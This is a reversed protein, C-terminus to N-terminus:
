WPGKTVLLGSPLPKPRYTEFSIKSRFLPSIFKRGSSSELFLNLFDEKITDDDSFDEVIGEFDSSYTSVRIKRERKLKGNMM